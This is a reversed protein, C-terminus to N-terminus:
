SGLANRCNVATRRFLSTCRGWPALVDDVPASGVREEVVMDLGSSGRETLPSGDM